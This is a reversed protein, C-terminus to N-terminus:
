SARKRAQRVAEPWGLTRLAGAKRELLGTARLEEARRRALETIRDKEAATM